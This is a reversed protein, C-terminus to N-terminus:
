GMVLCYQWTPERVMAYRSETGPAEFRRVMTRSCAKGSPAPPHSGRLALDGRVPGARYRDLEEEVAARCAEYVRQVEAHFEEVGQDLLDSALELEL